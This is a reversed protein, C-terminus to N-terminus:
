GVKWSKSLPEEPERQGPEGGDIAGMLGGLGIKALCTAPLTRYTSVLKWRGAVWNRLTGPGSTIAAM